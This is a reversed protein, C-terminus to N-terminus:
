SMNKEIETEAEIWGPFFQNKILNFQTNETKITM